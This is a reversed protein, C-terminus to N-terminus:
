KLIVSGITVDSATVRLPLGTADDTADLAINKLLIPASGVARRTPMIAVEFSAGVAPAIRGAYAPITGIHWRVSNTAPFYDIAQGETVSIRGTWRVGPPLTADLWADDAAGTTNTVSVFVWYTTTQGVKPPNPGIGLQDGQATRYVANARVDLKTAIPLPSTPTEVYARNGELIYNARASLRLQPYPDAGLLKETIENKISFTATLTGSAGSAIEALEPTTAADWRLSVPSVDEIFRQNINLAIKADHITQKGRNEYRVAVTMRQGALLKSAGAPDIIETAFAFDTAQAGAILIAARSVVATPATKAPEWYRLEAVVPQSSGAAGEMRATIRVMGRGEAPVDGLSIAVVNEEVSPPIAVPAAGCPQGAETSAPFQATVITSPPLRVLMSACHLPQPGDNHYVITLRAESGNAISRPAITTVSVIPSVPFLQLITQSFIGGVALAGVIFLLTLDFALVKSAHRKYKKKYREEWHLLLHRHIHRHLKM